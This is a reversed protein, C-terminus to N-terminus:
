RRARRLAVHRKAINANHEQLTKAFLSRGDPMAVYYLYGTKAPNLAAKISKLGPSCIPGPPLGKNLYTNYPSITHKLDARTPVHWRQQAYLITADVELPMNKALRNEIVSAILPRDEDLKAEREVMSAIIIARHLNKPQDLGKWVRKDFNELQQVIAAKAGVLPQIKYTDPYLYGELSKEPLPFTVQKAFEKPEQAAKVFDDAKAINEKEMLEATRTIWYYEPVTVKVTVPTTLAKLVEDVNMGPAISYTGAEVVSEKKRVRAFFGTAAASRIIGREQLDHLVSSLPLKAQFRILQAPGSETPQLKAQFIYGAVIAAVILGFLFLAINRRASKKKKSM